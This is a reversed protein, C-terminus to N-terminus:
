FRFVLGSTFSLMTSSPIAVDGGGGVTASSITTLTGYGVEIARLDLHRHIPYDVGVAIRYDPKKVSIKSSPAKTAGEGISAQIYPKWPHTFPKDSVRVGILFEKLSANNAHLDSWRMDIGATIGNTAHFFDDYGGLAVGWFTRSTDNTGLFAFNSTDLTSNSVHTAVPNLYLGVENQTQAHAAVTTLALVVVTAFYRLKM